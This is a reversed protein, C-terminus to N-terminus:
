ISKDEGVGEDRFAEGVLTFGAATIFICFGPLIILKPASYLSARADNMMAGWEATGAPLGLGLFSFASVIVIMGSVGTCIYVAFHPLVNPIIHHFLINFSRAGSIKASTVYDKNVEILSLSRAMRIYWAWMSAVLSITINYVSNGLSGILSMAILMAPFAMFIDCIIILIRDTKGGKYASASGLLLGIFGLALLAPLAIGLSYRAGYVLRSFICRGLQDTGMPFESSNSAYRMTPNIDEPNNTAIVDAFLAFISITIIIILGMIAQPRKLAKMM